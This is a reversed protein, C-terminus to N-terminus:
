LIETTQRNIANFMKNTLMKQEDSDITSNSEGLFSLSLAVSLFLPIVQLIMNKVCSYYKKLCNVTSLSALNSLNNFFKLATYGVVISVIATFCMMLLMENTRKSFRSFNPFNRLDRVLLHVHKSGGVLIILFCIVINILTVLSMMLLAKKHGSAYSKINQITEM